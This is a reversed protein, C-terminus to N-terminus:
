HHVNPKIFNEFASKVITNICGEHADFDSTNFLHRVIEIRTKNFPEKDIELGCINCTSVEVEVEKTVKKKM